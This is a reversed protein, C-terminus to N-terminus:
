RRLLREGMALWQELDGPDLSGLIGQTRDLRSVMEAAEPPMQVQSVTAGYIRALAELDTTSSKMEGREWRGITTHRKGLMGAVKEQSLKRFERWAKLHKWM